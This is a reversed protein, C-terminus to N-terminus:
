DLSAGKGRYFGALHVRKPARHAQVMAESWAGPAAGRRELYARYEQDYADIEALVAADDPYRDRCWVLGTPLRPRPLPDQDPVGVCMGYLPWVGHPLGLLADAQPLENRLGGVYCIGYGQAEFAVALNQAFLSADVVAVLFAELAADYPQGAREALLRHRRTDACVVFFAGATAVMRQNGALTALAARVAQDTVQVLAYAQMASSTSAAQGAQVARHIADDPVPADRFRRISRHALLLALPEAPSAM